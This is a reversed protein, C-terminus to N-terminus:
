HESKSILIKKKSVQNESKIVNTVNKDRLIVLRGSM